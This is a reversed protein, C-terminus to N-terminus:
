KALVTATQDTRVLRSGAPTTEFLGIDYRGPPLLGKPMSTLWGNPRAFPNKGTPKRPEAFMVYAAKRGDSPWFVVYTGENMGVRYGPADSELNFYGPQDLLRFSTAIRPGLQARGVSDLLLRTEDPTIAPNPLTHWNRVRMTSDLEIIWRALPSNHTGGLGIQNHQQNFTLGQMHKRRVVAEPVYTVYTLVNVFLFLGWLVPVLRQRTQPKLLSLLALYGVAWLVMSYTRYSSHLVMGFYFRIRFFAILAMNALLFLAVGTLFTEFHSRNAEKRFVVRVLWWALVGVVALGALLPLASRREVTWAPFFDFLSGAFIFFGALTQIPHALVYAFGEANGQQVPYNLFYLWICVAGFVLWIGLWLWRRRILLMAAGAPWLLIGNGMSFTALAGLGLAGAFSGPRDYALVFFTLLVLVIIALYQLTYIATFTLLYNQAVFLMLPVPLLWFRSNAGELSSTSRYLLGFILVLGLNGWLMLGSFSLGGTLLYQAYVVLRAYLVRHENNPKLLADLGESVSRADVFRQLFYPINEYEDFWPINYRLAFFYVFFVAIPLILLATQLYRNTFLKM